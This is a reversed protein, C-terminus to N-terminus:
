ASSAVRKRRAACSSCACGQRPRFGRSQPQPPPVVHRLRHDRGVGVDGLVRVRVSLVDLRREALLCRVDGVVVRAAVDVHDRTERLAREGHPENRGRALARLVDPGRSAELFPVAAAPVGLCAEGVLVAVPHPGLHEVRRDAQHEAAVGVQVVLLRAHIGVVAPEGLVAARVGVTEEADPLGGHARGRVADRIEPADLREPEAAHQEGAAGALRVPVARDIVLEELGRDLEAQRHGEVDQGIGLIRKRLM